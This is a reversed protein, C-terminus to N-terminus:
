LTSPKVMKEALLTVLEGRSDYLIYLVYIVTVCVCVVRFILDNKIICGCAM